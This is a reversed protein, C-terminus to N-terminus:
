HHVDAWDCIAKYYYKVFRNWCYAQYHHDIPLSAGLGGYSSVVGYRKQSPSGFYIGDAASAPVQYIENYGKKTFSLDTYATRPKLLRRCVYPHLEACRGAAYAQSVRDYAGVPGDLMSPWASETTGDVTAQIPAAEDPTAVAEPAPIAAPPNTDNLTNGAGQGNPSFRGSARPTSLPSICRPAAGANFTLPGSEGTESTITGAAGEVLDIETPQTGLDRTGAPDEDVIGFDGRWAVSPVSGCPNVYAVGTFRFSVPGVSPIAGHLHNACTGTGTATSSIEMPDQGPAVAAPISEQFNLSDITCDAGGWQWNNTDASATAPM